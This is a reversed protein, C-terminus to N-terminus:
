RGSCGDREQSDTREIRLFAPKPSRRDPKAFNCVFIKENGFIGVRLKRRAKEFRTSAGLRRADFEKRLKPSDCFRKRRLPKRYCRCIRACYNRVNSADGQAREAADVIFPRQVRRGARM